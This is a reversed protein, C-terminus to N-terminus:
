KHGAFTGTLQQTRWASEAPKFRLFIFSTYPLPAKLGTLTLLQGWREEKRISDVMAATRAADAVAAARQQSKTQKVPSVPKKPSAKGSM